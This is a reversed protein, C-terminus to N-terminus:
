LTEVFTMLDSSDGASTGIGGQGSTGQGTGEDWDLLDMGGFNTPSLANSFDMLGGSSTGSPTPMQLLDNSMSGYLSDDLGLSLGSSISPSEGRSTSSQQNQSQNHQPQAQQPQQPQHPKQQQVPNPQQSRAPAQQGMQQQTQQGSQQNAANQSNQQQQHKMQNAQQASFQQQPGKQQQMQQQRMMQQQQMMQQQRAQAQMQQQQQMQQARQQMMYQKQQAPMQTTTNVANQQQAQGASQAQAMASSFGGSPMTSSGSSTTAGSSTPVGPGTTTPQQGAPGASSADGSPYTRKDTETRLKKLYPNVIKVIYKFVKDLEEIKRPPHTAKDENLINACLEVYSLLYRLKKKQETEDHGKMHDVYKKFANHVKEVDGQHKARLAAHQQWYEAVSNGSTSTESKVPTNTASVPKQQQQPQQQQQAQQQQAGPHPGPGSVQNHGPYSSVQGGAAGRQNLNLTNYYSFDLRSLMGQNPLGQAAMAANMDSQQARLSKLRTFIKNIYVEQTPSEKYLSLEYWSVNMWLKIGPVPDASVRVMENYIKAILNARHERTLQIRWDSVQPPNMVNPNMQSMGMSGMPMSNMMMQPQTYMAQPNMGMGMSQPNAAGMGMSMPMSMGGGQMGMSHPDM